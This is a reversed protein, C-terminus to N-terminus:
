AGSGRSGEKRLQEGLLQQLGALSKSNSAGEVTKVAIDQVKQYAAELQKTLASVRDSQEKATKELSDIRATFVNREGEIEKKLLEERARAEATLRDATEKVARAVATELEKPHQAAQKRLDNLEAEKAAVAAERAGLEQELREKKDTLEKELRAKEYAFRDDTEQKERKFAYDFEEKERAQRKKEAADREKIAADREEQDKKWAARTSEIEERLTEKKEEMEDAFEARKQNQAEILAALSLAAKEIEYLESIEKEKAAIANGIAVFRGVQGELQDAIGTLTKGIELKLAAIERAVGDATLSEAIQVAERSKKEEARKEPRLENQQRAELEKLVANYAQLMEQKTSTLSIKKSEKKSEMSEEEECFPTLDQTLIPDPRAIV